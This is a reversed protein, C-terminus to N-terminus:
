LQSNNLHQIHLYQDPNTNNNQPKVNKYSLTHCILQIM